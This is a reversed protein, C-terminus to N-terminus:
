HFVCYVIGGSSLSRDEPGEKPQLHMLKLGTKGALFFVCMCVCVQLSVRGLM